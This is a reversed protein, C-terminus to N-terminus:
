TPAKEYYAWNSVCENSQSDQHDNSGRVQRSLQSSHAIQGQAQLGLSARYKSLEGSVRAADARGIADYVNQYADALKIRYQQSLEAAKVASASLDNFMSAARSNIEGKAAFVARDPLLGLSYESADIKYGDFAISYKAVEEANLYGTEDNRAMNNAIQARAQAVQARTEAASQTAVYAIAGTETSDASIQASVAKNRAVRERNRLRNVRYENAVTEAQAGWAALRAEYEAFRARVARAEAEVSQVWAKYADLDAEVIAAESKYIDSQLVVVRHKAQYASSLATNLNAIYNQQKVFLGFQSARAQVHTMRGRYNAAAVQLQAIKLNFRAVALGYLSLFGVQRAALYEFELDYLSGLIDMVMGHAETAIEMAVPLLKMRWRTIAADYEARTYELYRERVKGTRVGLHRDQPNVMGRRTWLPGLRQGYEIQARNLLEDSVEFLDEIPVTFGGHEVLAGVAPMLTPLLKQHYEPVQFERDLMAELRDFDDTSPMQLDRIEYPEIDLIPIEDTSIAPMDPAPGEDPIGSLDASINFGPNPAINVTQQSPANPAGLASFAVLSQDFAVAQLQPKTLTSLDFGDVGLTPPPNLGLGGSIEPRYVDPLNPTTGTQFSFGGIDAAFSIDANISPSFQGEQQILSRAEASLAESQAKLSRIDALVSDTEGTVNDKITQPDLGWLAGQGLSVDCHVPM